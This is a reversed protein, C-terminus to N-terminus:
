RGPPVPVWDPEGTLDYVKKDSKLKDWDYRASTTGREDIEANGGHSNVYAVVKKQFSRWLRDAQRFGIERAGRIGWFEDMPRTARDAGRTYFTWSGKGRVFGFARNGSVPHAGPNDRNNLAKFGSGGRVTSFIWENSDRMSTVVLALDSVGPALKIDILLIAGDPDETKWAAEDQRKFPEFKSIDTDVFDNLNLRIHALLEAPELKHGGVTPLELVKIPYYDLNVMGSGGEIRHVTWTPGREHVARQVKPDPRFSLLAKWPGLDRGGVRGLVFGPLTAALLLAVSSGAIRRVM